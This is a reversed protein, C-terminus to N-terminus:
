VTAQLLSGVVFRAIAFASLIIALGIIGAMILGRAKKIKEENGGATMWTFGGLLIIVVAIVGLLGLAANIVSAITQPLTKTQGLKITELGGGFLQGETLGQARTLFPVASLSLTVVTGFAKKIKNM